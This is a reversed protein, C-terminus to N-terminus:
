FRVSQRAHHHRSSDDADGHPKRWLVWIERRIEFGLHQYLTIAPNGIRVHLFPVEGRKFAAHMLSRTLISALGRGRARPHTAIGSLEVYGPLHLREGAMAVLSGDQRIGIYRGLECTRPGFPGPKAVDVLGLMADNDNPSLVVPKAEDAKAAEPMRRAVMQLMPFADLKKWCEPLPEDTLRFLRAETGAPLDRALDAYAESSGDRLGAFPAMDRPYQRASGSGIAFPHHPGTLAHWVPNDLMEENM